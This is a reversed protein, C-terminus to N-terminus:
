LSFKFKIKTNNISKRLANLDNDELEGKNNVTIEEIVKEKIESELWEMNSMMEKCESIFKPVPMIDSKNIREYVWDRIGDKVLNIRFSKNYFYKKGLKYKVIVYLENGCCYPRDDTQLIIRAKVSVDM